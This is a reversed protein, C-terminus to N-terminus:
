RVRGGNFLLDSSGAILAASLPVGDRRLELRVDGLARGLRDGAVVRAGHAVSPAVDILLSTWGGGHDIVVVGDHERYPGAFRVTGAAPATLASGRPTAFRIGRSRVGSANVSGLGEIVPARTPLAYPLAARPTPADPAFPRPPALPLRAVLRAVRRAAAEAEAEGGLDLLQEGGAIVRDDAGLADARSSAARENARAELTAFAQRREVLEGRASAVGIRAEGARVALARGADLEAKLAASRAAIVPMSSDILARIRVLDGISRSDALALLPPRRGMTALGALLAALPARRQDLRAARVAVAARAAALQIDARAIRAEALEIEAAARVQEARLRAAEDLAAKERTELVAVRKAAADAEAAVRALAEGVTERAPAIPVSAAALAPALLAALIALRKM